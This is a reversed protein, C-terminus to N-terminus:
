LCITKYKKLFWRGDEDFQFLFEQGKQWQKKKIILKPITVFFQGRSEQLKAM